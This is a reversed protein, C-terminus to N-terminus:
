KKLYIRKLSVALRSVKYIFAKLSKHIVYMYNFLSNYCIFSKIRTKRYKIKIDECLQILNFFCNFRLVTEDRIM